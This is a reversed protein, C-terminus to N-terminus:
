ILGTQIQSPIIICRENFDQPYGVQSGNLLTFVGDAKAVDGDIQHTYRVREDRSTIWMKGNVKSQMIGEQTGFNSAGFTETRAILRARQPSIEDFWEDILKIKESISLREAEAKQLLKRVERGTTENVFRSLEEVRRGIENRVSPLSLDIKNPDAFKAMVLNGFNEIVSAMWPESEKKLEKKWKEFDFIVGTIMIVSKKDKRLNRAIEKKQKVFFSEM